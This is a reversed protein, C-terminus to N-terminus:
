GRLALLELVPDVHPVAQGVSLPLFHLIEEGDSFLTLIKSPGSMYPGWSFFRLYAPFSSISSPPRDLPCTHPAKLGPDRIFPSLM